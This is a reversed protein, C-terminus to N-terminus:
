PTQRRVRVPPARWAPLASRRREDEDAEASIARGPQRQGFAFQAANETEYVCVRNRGARRARYLAEDAHSM